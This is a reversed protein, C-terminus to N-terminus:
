YGQYWTGSLRGDGHGSERTCKGSLALLLLTNGDIGSTLRFHNERCEPFSVHIAGCFRPAGELLLRALSTEIWM